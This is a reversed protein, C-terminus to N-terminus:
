RKITVSTLPFKCQRVRLLAGFRYRGGFSSGLLGSELIKDLRIVWGESVM